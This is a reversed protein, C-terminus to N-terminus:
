VNKQSSHASTLQFHMLVKDLLNTAESVLNSHETVSRSPLLTHLQKIYLRHISNYM